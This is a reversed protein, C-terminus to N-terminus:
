EIETWDKITKEPWTPFPEMDYEPNKVFDGKVISIGESKLVKRLEARHKRSM